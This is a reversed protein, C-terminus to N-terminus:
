SVAQLSLSPCRSVGMACFNDKKSSVVKDICKSQQSKDCGWHYQCRFQKETGDNLEISWTTSVIADAGVWMTPRWKLLVWKPLFFHKQECRFCCIAKVNRILEKWIYTWVPTHLASALQKKYLFGRLCFNRCWGQERNHEMSVGGQLMAMTWIVFYIRKRGQALIKENKHTNRFSNITIWFAWLGKLCFVWCLM